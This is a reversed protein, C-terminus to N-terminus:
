CSVAVQSTCVSLQAPWRGRATLLQQAEPWTGKKAASQQTSAQAVLGAQASSPQVGPRGALRAGRVRVRAGGSRAGPQRASSAGGGSASSRRSRRAGAGCLAVRVQAASRASEGARAGRAGAASLFRASFSCSFFPFREFRLNL